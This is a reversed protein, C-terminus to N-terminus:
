KAESFSFITYQLVLPLSLECCVIRFLAQVLMELGGVSRDQQDQTVYDPPPYASVMFRGLYQANGKLRDHLTSQKKLLATEPM